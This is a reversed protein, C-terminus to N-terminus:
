RIRNLDTVVIIPRSGLRSPVPLWSALARGRHVMANRSEVTWAVWGTPGAAVVGGVAERFREIAMRQEDSPTAPEPRRQLLERGDISAYWPLGYVEPDFADVLASGLRDLSGVADAMPVCARPRVRRHRVLKAHTPACAPM